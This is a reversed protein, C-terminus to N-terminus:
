QYAKQPKVEYGSEQGDKTITMRLYQTAAYDIRIVEKESNYQAQFQNRVGDFCFTVSHYYVKREDLCFDIGNVQARTADTLKINKYEGDKNLKLEKGNPKIWKGDQYTAIVTNDKSFNVIQTVGTNRRLGIGTPENNKFYALKIDVGAAELCWSKTFINNKRNGIRLTKGDCYVGEGNKEEKKYEALDYMSNQPIGNAYAINVGVPKGLSKNGLLHWGNYEYVEVNYTRGFASRKKGVKGVSTGDFLNFLFVVAFVVALVAVFGSLCGTSGTPAPSTTGSHTDENESCIRRTRSVPEKPERLPEEEEAAERHNSFHYDPNLKGPKGTGSSEWSSYDMEQDKKKAEELTSRIQPFYRLLDAETARRNWFLNVYQRLEQYGISEYPTHGGFKYAKAFGFWQYQAKLKHWAMKPNGIEAETMGVENYLITAASQNQVLYLYLIRTITDPNCDKKGIRHQGM